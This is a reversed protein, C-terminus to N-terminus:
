AGGFEDNDNYHKKAADQLNDMADGINERLQAYLSEPLRQLRASEYMAVARGYEMAAEELLSQEQNM